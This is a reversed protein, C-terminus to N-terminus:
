HRGSTPRWAPWTTAGRKKSSTRLQPFGDSLAVAAWEKFERWSISALYDQVHDNDRIMLYYGM